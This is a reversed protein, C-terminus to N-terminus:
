KSNGPKTPLRKEGTLLACNIPPFNIGANSKEFGVSTNTNCELQINTHASGGRQKWGFNGEWAFPGLVLLLRCHNLGLDVTISM